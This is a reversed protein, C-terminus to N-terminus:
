LKTPLGSTRFPMTAAYDPIQKTFLDNLQSVSANLSGKSGSCTSTWLTKIAQGNTLVSYEYVHGTACIGRIDNKDDSLEKGKMMNAKDLAFVFQEYAKQNNDYNKATEVTELYGQYVTMSRMTPSAEITYSKFTEEATLPGRVTLRVSHSLGTNLLNTQGPDQSTTATQNNGGFIARGVSVIVIILLVVVVLIIFLPFLRPGRNRQM